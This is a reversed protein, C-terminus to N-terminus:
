NTTTDPVSLSNTFNRLEQETLRTMLPQYPNIKHNLLANKSDQWQFKPVNLFKAILKSTHPIVPNLYIALIRFLNIGMTCVIHAEPLTNPDKVLMWPKCDNIYKNATDALSMIIRIAQSYELQLWHQAITDGTLVFNQYLDRDVDNIKDSLIGDFYITIFNAIRSAINIFKGILDANVRNIFDTFNFDLDEIHNSLKTALYYRLFEPNLHQLYATATIFTGRSKSMKKGNITLFGHAFIASPTRMSAGTLIAPWFLAHFYIIDKGIFHYVETKSNRAWYTNIFEVESRIEGLKACAAIYGIPADLWCYYYKDTEGPILFGFYPHDRSIDWDELGQQLWENLKNQVPPQLHQATIWQQLFETYNSLKFFYHKTQQTIPTSGSLISYPSILDLPAYISGCAECNDGYQEQTKCVPCIGKIFRDPLFMNKDADYAQTITQEIINGRSLHENFILDVLQQNEPSHTTYFIDLDVFFKKLNEHHQQQFQTVLQEPNLQQKEAALMIPTGHADCGSVLLCENGHMKHTRVWIDAQINELIHGLHLPGNAYPLATTVLIKKM